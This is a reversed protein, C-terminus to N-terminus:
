EAQEFINFQTLLEVRKAEGDFPTRWTFFVDKKVGSSIGNIQTASTGLANGNSDYIIAFVNINKITYLSANEVVGKLKPAVDLNTPSETSTLLKLDSFRDKASVWVPTSTFRFLTNKPVREGTAIAPEFVAFRGNPPVYTKGQRSAIFLNKEDFLTFEYSVERSAASINQNEVYAFANYYGKAVAYSRSWKVVLPTTDEVCIRACAGGCDVGRENGNQKADTCTPPVTFKPYLYLFLVVAFCLVVLGLYTLKRKAAWTM